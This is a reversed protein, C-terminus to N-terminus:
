ESPTPSVYDWYRSVMTREDPGCAQTYITTTEISAHGLLRQLSDLQGGADLFTRGFCHRLGRPTARIGTIGAREATERIFKWATIRNFPWLREARRQSCKQREALDFHADIHAVFSKPLPIERYSLGRRKLTKVALIEGEIQISESTISLGESVRLGSLALLRIFLQRDVPLADLARLLAAREALNIYKRAGAPSYLSQAARFPVAVGESHRFCKGANQKAAIAEINAASKV